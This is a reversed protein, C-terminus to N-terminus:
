LLETLHRLVPCHKIWKIAIEEINIDIIYYVMDSGILVCYAQFLIPFIDLFRSKYANLLM